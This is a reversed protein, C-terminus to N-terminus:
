KTTVLGLARREKPSLKALAEKRIRAVEGKEHETAWAKLEKSVRRLLNNKELIDVAECLLPEVRKLRTQLEQNYNRLDLERNSPMDDMGDVRCPM